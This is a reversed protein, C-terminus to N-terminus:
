VCYCQSCSNKIVDNFLVMDIKNLEINARENIDIDM